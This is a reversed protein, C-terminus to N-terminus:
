DFNNLHPLDANHVVEEKHNAVVIVVLLNEVVRPGEANRDVGGRRDKIRSM